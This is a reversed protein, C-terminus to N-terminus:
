RLAVMTWYVVQPGAPVNFGTIRLKWTGATIGGTVRAREFV